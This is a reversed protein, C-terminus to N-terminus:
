GRNTNGGKGKGEGGGACVAAVLLRWDSRIADSSALPLRPSAPFCQPKTQYRSSPFRFRFPPPSPSNQQQTSIFMSKLREGGGRGCALGTNIITITQARAFISPQSPPTRTQALRSVTLEAWHWHRRRPPAAAQGSQSSYGHGQATGGPRCSTRARSSGQEGRRYGFACASNGHRHRTAM